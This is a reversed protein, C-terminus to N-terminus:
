VGKEYDEREKRSPKIASFIRTEIGTDTHSVVILKGSQTRGITVFRFEYWSHDPDDITLLLPDYFVTAADEFAIGHKKKNIRNKNEDWVVKM